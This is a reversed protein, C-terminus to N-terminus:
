CGVRISICSTGISLSHSTRNRVRTRMLQDEPMLVLTKKLFYVGDQIQITITGSTGANRRARAIDRAAALTRVPGAPSVVITQASLASLCLLLLVPVRMIEQMTVADHRPLTFRSTLSQRYPPSDM